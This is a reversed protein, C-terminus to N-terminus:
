LTCYNCSICLLQSGAASVKGASSADASAFMQKYLKVDDASLNWPSSPDLAPAAPAAAQPAPMMPAAPAAALPAAPAAPAGGGQAAALIAPPVMSPIEGGARAHNILHQRM